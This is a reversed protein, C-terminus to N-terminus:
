FLNKYHKKTKTKKMSLTMTLPFRWFDCYSRAIVFEYMALIGECFVIRWTRVRTKIWPRRSISLWIYVHSLPIYAYTHDTQKKRQNNILFRYGELGGPRTEAFVNAYNSKGTYLIGCVSQSASTSSLVAKFPLVRFRNQRRLHRRFVANKIGGSWQSGMGNFTCEKGLWCGHVGDCIQGHYQM